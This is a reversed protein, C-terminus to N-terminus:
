LKTGASGTLVQNGIFLNKERTLLQGRSCKPRLLQPAITPMTAGRVPTEHLCTAMHEHVHGKSKEAM